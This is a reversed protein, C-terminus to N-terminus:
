PSPTVGLSMFRRTATSYDQILTARRHTFLLGDAVTATTAVGEPQWSSSTLNSSGLIEFNMGTTQKAELYNIVIPNASTDVDFSSLGDPRRPDLGLCYEALTTFGDGDADAM